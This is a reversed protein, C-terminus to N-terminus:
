SLRLDCLAPHLPQTQLQAQLWTETPDRQSLQSSQQGQYPPPVSTQEPFKEQGGSPLWGCQSALFALFFMAWAQGHLDGPGTSFPYVDVSHPLIASHESHGGM